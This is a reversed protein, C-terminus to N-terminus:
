GVSSSASIVVTCTCRTYMLAVAWAIQSAMV